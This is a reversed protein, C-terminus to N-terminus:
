LALKKVIQRKLEADFDSTDKSETKQISKAKEPYQADKHNTGNKRGFNGFFGKVWAFIDPSNKESFTSGTIREALRFFAKAAPSNKKGLTVPVKEAIEEAIKEKPM